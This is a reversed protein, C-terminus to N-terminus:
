GFLREELDKMAEPDSTLKKFMEAKDLKVSKGGKDQPIGTGDEPVQQQPNVGGIKQSAISYAHLWPISPNSAKEVVAKPYIKEFVGKEVDEVFLKMVEPEGQKNLTIIDNFFQDDLSELITKVKGGLEPNSSAMENYYTVVPDEREIEPKYEKDSADYIDVDKLVNEKLYKFADSNGNKAEIFAKLEEASVDSSELLKVEDIMPKIKNMKFNYDLGQQALAIIKEREDVEIEQGNHKLIFKELSEDENLNGDNEGLNDGDTAKPVGDEDEAPIDSNENNQEGSINEQGEEPNGETPKDSASDSEGPNLISDEDFGESTMKDWLDNENM